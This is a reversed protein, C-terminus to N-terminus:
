LKRELESILLPELQDQVPGIHETGSVRGGKRKAHGYELLQTFGPYKSNYIYSRADLRGDADKATWGTAYRGKSLKVDRFKTKSDSRIAEAGKKAVDHVVERLSATVDARYDEMIDKIADALTDATVKRGM